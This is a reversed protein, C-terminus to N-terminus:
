VTVPVENTGNTGTSDPLEPGGTVAHVLVALSAEDFLAVLKRFAHTVVERYFQAPKALCFVM